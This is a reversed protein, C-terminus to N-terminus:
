HNESNNLFDAMFDSHWCHEGEQIDHFIKDEVGFLQYATQITRVQEYVNMLGRPGNLHDSRCSQIMLANPALMAGIDGMDLHEYLHPVYNCNCNGNLQLLSDKYGYLYGSIISRHIRDDLASAWLTQMGGGSFGMCGLLEKDYQDQTDIYDLLRMIDWTLM